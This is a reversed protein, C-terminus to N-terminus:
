LINCCITKKELVILIIDSETSLNYYSLETENDMIIANCLLVQREIPINKINAIM